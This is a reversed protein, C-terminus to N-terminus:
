LSEPNSTTEDFSYSFSFCLCVKVLAPLLSEPISNASSTPTSPTNPAATTTPKKREKKPKVDIPLDFLPLVSYNAFSAAHAPLDSAQLAFVPGIASVSLQKVRSDAKKLSGPQRAKIKKNKDKDKSKEKEKGKDKNEETEKNEGNEEKQEAKKAESGEEDSEGVGEDESFYGDPVLWGETESDEEEEEEEEDEDSFANLDEGPEEEEWDDDSDYDYDLLSSDKKFPNKGNLINSKQQWTGYYAPRHNEHFQLLKMKFRGHAKKSLPKKKQKIEMLLSKIDQGKENGNQISEDMNEQTLPSVTRLVPALITNPPLHVGRFLALGGAEGVRRRKAVPSGCETAQQSTAETSQKEAPAPSSSGPKPKAQLFSALLSQMKQKKAEESKKKSEAQRQKEEQKAKREEALRQKEELLRQKEEQKAKREEELKQKKEVKAKKEEERAAKKAEWEAKKAAKEAERKEKEAERQAKREEKQKQLMEKEEKTRCVRKRKTGSPSSVDPNSQDAQTQDTTEKTRKRKRPTTTKDSENTLSPLPVEMPKAMTTPGDIVICDVDM